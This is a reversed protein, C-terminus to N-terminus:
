MDDVECMPYLFTTQHACSSFDIRVDHQPRGDLYAQRDIRPYGM